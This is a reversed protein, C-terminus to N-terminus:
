RASASAPPGGTSRLDESRWGPESGLGEAYTVLLRVGAGLSLTRAQLCAGVYIRLFETEYDMKHKAGFDIARSLYLDVLDAEASATESILM